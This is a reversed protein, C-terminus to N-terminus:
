FDKVFRKYYGMLGLFSRVEFVIKPQPWDVIAKIKQTDVSIRDRNIIHGFFVISDLWFQCKKFKAYLM